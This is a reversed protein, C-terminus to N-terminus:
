AAMSVKKARMKSALVVLNAIREASYTGKRQNARQEAKTAWRVNGPEYNGDNDIRDLSMGAPRPGIHEFFQEFSTFLFRIGRAGYGKYAKVNPNTCRKRADRFAQLEPMRAMSNKVIGRCGHGAIFRVPQGAIHGRRTNTLKAISTQQRCGCACNM